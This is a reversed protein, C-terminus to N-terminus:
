PSSVVRLFSAPLTISFPPQFAFRISEIWCEQTVLVLTGYDQVGRNRKIASMTMGGAFGVFAVIISILAAEGIQFPTVKYLLAGVIGASLSGGYM